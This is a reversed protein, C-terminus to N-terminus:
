SRKPAYVATIVGSQLTKSELLTLNINRTLNAFFPKGNSLVM